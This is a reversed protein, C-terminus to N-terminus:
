WLVSLSNQMFLSVDQTKLDGKKQGTNKFLVKTLLKGPDVIECICEEQM